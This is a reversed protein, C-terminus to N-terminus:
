SVRFAIGFNLLQLSKTIGVNERIKDIAVECFSLTVVFSVSELILGHVISSEPM